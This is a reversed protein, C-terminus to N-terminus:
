GGFGIEVHNIEVDKVSEASAADPKFLAINVGSSISSDYAVGDFGCNKILECLYQSPIYDIDATERVIPTALEQGLKELFDIDGRLSAIGDDSELFPSILLRPNRLDAIKLPLQARFIAVSVIEGQQPRVESVATNENSALYLYSIGNPNARGATASEAPPAGMETIKFSTGNKTIRARYWNTPQEDIPWILNDNLHKELNDKQIDSKPFFRNIKKLEHTLSNWREVRDTTCKDSPIYKLSPIESNNLIDSLLNQSCEESMNPNKFLAWDESLLKLLTKGNENPAYIDIVLEFLDTLNKSDWLSQNETGCLPCTRAPQEGYLTFKKRLETDGFCEACCLM